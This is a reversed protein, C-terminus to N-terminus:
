VAQLDGPDTNAGCLVIALREGAAPKYSGSALAALAAACGHEIVLRSHDWLWRRAAVIAENNVTVSRVGAKVAVDFAICGIRRAGLSDAAVGSAEVDVPKGHALAEHLTPCTEPEVAVVRCHDHVATTVGAMLGGGGVALMITDLGANTQEILELRLTAQGAVIEPQDYAHCFLANTAAAREIAACYADAYENGREVVTAGLGRLKATNLAPANAPVFVEVPVNLARAAYALALGANGGSATVVGAARLEGTEAASLIRNFAGRAKLSGSHQMFELKFAVPKVPGFAGIDIQVVPTRRIRDAIRAAAAEIDRLTPTELLLSNRDV